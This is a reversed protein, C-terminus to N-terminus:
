GPLRAAKPGGTERLQRRNIGASVRREVPEATVLLLAGVVALLFWPWWGGPPQWQATGLFWRPGGLGVAFRHADAWWGVLQLGAVAIAFPLFVRDAGLALLRSRQRVLIEGALLPVVVSFPLVYRGQLGFGTHQMISAVLFVPLALAIVVSTTLILRERRNGVLLAIACLCVVLANWATYAIPPLGIEGYDFLGVQQLLVGPLQHWGAALSTSLPTPDFDLKPGYLAVWLRNLVIGVAVVALATSAARRHRRFLGRARRPGVLAVFVALDLVVWLPAPTRSLALVFGSGGIAAWLWGPPDATRALRLLTAFFAIAGAIEVGSPNLSSALFVGMPTLAVTLGVFPLSGLGPKLLAAVAVVLLAICILGKTLRMLRDLQDPSLPARSELAPLLYPLPQYTATAIYQDTAETLPPSSNLCEASVYPNGQSCRFWGPMLGHPIHVLRTSQEVWKLEREYDAQSYGPPPSTGVIALAGERGGPKGSLQGHGISVARLYHHLEDPAAPPPNAYVWSVVLLSYAIVVLSAALISGRRSHDPLRVLAVPHADEDPFGIAEGSVATAEARRVPTRADVRRIAPRAARRLRHPRSSPLPMTARWANPSERTPPSPTVM